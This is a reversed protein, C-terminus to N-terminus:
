RYAGPLRKLVAAGLLMALVFKAIDIFFFVGTATVIVYGISAPTGLYLNLVAYMHAVGIAYMAAISILAFASIKLALLPKPPDGAALKKRILLSVLLACVAFGPIFGFSPELVYGLGGGKSFVPLGLLGIAMYVLQSVLAYRPALLLGALFVFFTQLTFILMTGPVPIKVFIGAATLAAFLACLLMQKTKM